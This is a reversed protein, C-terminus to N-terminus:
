RRIGRADHPLVQCGQDVANELVVFDFKAEIEVDLLVLQEKKIYLAQQLCFHCDGYAIAFWHHLEEGVNEGDQKVVLRQLLSENLRDHRQILLQLFAQLAYDLLRNADNIPQLARAALLGITDLVTRVEHVVEYWFWLFDLHDRLVFGLVLFLLRLQDIFQLILLVLQTDRQLLRLLVYCVEFLRVRLLVLLDHLQLFCDLCKFLFILFHLALEQILLKRSLFCLVLHVRHLIHLILGIPSLLTDLRRLFSCEFVQLSLRFLLVVDDHAELTM